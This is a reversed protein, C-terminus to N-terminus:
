DVYIPISNHYLSKWLEVHAIRQTSQLYNTHMIDFEKPFIDKFTIEYHKCLNLLLQKNHRYIDSCKDWLEYLEENSKNNLKLIENQILLQRINDDANDYSEDIIDSFTKFGLIKLNHLVHRQGIVIFPRSSALARFTKESIFTFDISLAQSEYITETVINCFSDRYYPVLHSHHHCFGADLNEESFSNSDNDFRFSYYCNDKISNTELFNKLNTRHEKKTKNFTIFKKKFDVPLKFEDQLFEDPTAWYLNFPYYYFSFQFYGLLHEYDKSRNEYLIIFKKTNLRKELFFEHIHFLKLIHGMSIYEGKESYMIKYDKYNKYYFDLFDYLVIDEEQVFIPRIIFITKSNDDIIIDKSFRSNDM